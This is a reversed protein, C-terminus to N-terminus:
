AVKAPMNVLTLHQRARTVQVYCLNDEQQLEWAETAWKSPSYTEMGLAFVRDWEKGKARHVTSLTLVRQIEGEKTDGFLADIKGTLTAIRDSDDCQAIFVELTKVQDEIIQCRSDNGKAKHKATEREAWESLKVALEGVTKISKWRMALNILGQGISRGEVRCAVNQRILNYALEVLPKTNRCLIADNKSALKAVEHLECSDVVGDPASEHAEIHDVWKNAVSVVAKPCRFTVSLPLTVANFAERITDLSRHDAGTFGYVAQRPDGVAIVKGGPKLMKKILALRTANIDQAEDIFIVDHQWVRANKLVPLYVMDDYDIVNTVSNSCDLLYRCASIAEEDNYNDPLSDWLKQHNLMEVWNEVTDEACARIGYKKAMSVASEVFTRLNEFEGNFEERAMNRLKYNDVKFSSVARRIIGFGFSHVTGVKVNPFQDGIKYQMEGAITKNFACVVVSKTSPIHPITKVIVFSKGSGAVSEIVVSRDGGIIASQAAAQQPSLTSVPIERLNGGM